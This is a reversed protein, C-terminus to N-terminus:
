AEAGEYRRSLIAATLLSIVTLSALGALGAAGRLFVPLGAGLLLLLGALANFLGHLAACPLVSGSGRRLVLLIITLLITLICFLALLLPSGGSRTGPMNFSFGALLILPAHWLGWIVGILITSATFGLRPYFAKYLLGRWGTEEGLAFVMNITYGALPAVLLVSQLYGRRILVSLNASVLGPNIAYLIAAGLGIYAYVIPLPYIMWRWAGPKRLGLMRLGRGLPVHDVLLAALSGIFPAYMAAALIIMQLQYPMSIAKLELVYAIVYAVVLYVAIAKGSPVYVESGGM